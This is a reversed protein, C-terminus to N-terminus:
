KTFTFTASAPIPNMDAIDDLYKNIYLMLDVIRHM